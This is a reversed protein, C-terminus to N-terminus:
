TALELAHLHSIEFPNNTAVVLEHGDMKVPVICASRLFEAISSDLELPTPSLPEEKLSCLPINFYDRLVPLLDDESLLGLEVILRTLPAQQEEQLRMAREMEEASLLRREVLQGGLSLSTEM